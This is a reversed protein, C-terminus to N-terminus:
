ASARHLDVPSQHARLGRRDCLEGRLSRGGPRGPETLMRIFYEPLEAPYRAPILSSVTESAIACTSATARRIRFPSSTRHFRRGTTPASSKASTTDPLSTEQSQLGQGAAGAHEPQVAAVGPPQEGQALADQVAVLRHQDCGQRPDPARDGMRRPDATQVPEVLLFGACPSLRIRRVAHHAAQFSVPEEDSIGQEVRRRHRHGSQREREPNSSVRCRFAQVLGRVQDAEVNGYDKKRVLGFPPSTMILDVSDPECSASCRSVTEMYSGGGPRGTFRTRVEFPEEQLM